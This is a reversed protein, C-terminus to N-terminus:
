ALVFKNIVDAVGDEEVSPAIYDAIEKLDDVANGIAVKFGCAMMLPFDNYGDGIGIIEKASINLIKAVEFIGHQKTAMAHTISVGFKGPQWSAVKHVSIDSLVSLENALKDAKSEELGYIGMELVKEPKYNKTYEKSEGKGENLFIKSSYKKSIKIVQPIDKKVIPKEWIINQTEGYIVQAGGSVVSPGSLRLIELIPKASSLSRQTAIGVHLLKTSLNIARVVKESILEEKGVPFLTDDCDIMLAKFKKRKM